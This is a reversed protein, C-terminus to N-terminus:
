RGESTDPNAPARRERSWDRTQRRQIAKRYLSSNQALFTLTALLEAGVELRQGKGAVGLLRTAIVVAQEEDGHPLVRVAM